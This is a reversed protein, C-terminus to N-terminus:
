YNGPQWPRVAPRWRQEYATARKRRFLALLTRIM